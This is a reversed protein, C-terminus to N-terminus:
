VIHSQKIKSLHILLFKELEDFFSELECLSHQDSYTDIKLQLSSFADANHEYLLSESDGGTSNALTVLVSSPISNKQFIDGLDGILEFNLNFDGKVETQQTNLHQLQYKVSIENSLKENWNLYSKTFYRIIGHVKIQDKHAAKVIYLIKQEIKKVILKKEALVKSKEKLESFIPLEFEAVASKELLRGLEVGLNFLQVDDRFRGSIHKSVKENLIHFETNMEPVWCPNKNLFKQVRKQMQINVYKLISHASNSCGIFYKFPQFLFCLLATHIKRVPM